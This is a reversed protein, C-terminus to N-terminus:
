TAVSVSDISLLVTVIASSTAAPQPTPLAASYALVMLTVLLPTRSTPLLVTICQLNIRQIQGAVGVSVVM